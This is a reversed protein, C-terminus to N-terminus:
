KCAITTGGTQNSAQAPLTLKNFHCCVGLFPTRIGQYGSTTIDLVTSLDVSKKGQGTTHGNAKPHFDREFTEQGFSQLHVHLSPGSLRRYEKRGCVRIQNFENTSMFVSQM